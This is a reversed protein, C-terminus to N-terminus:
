ADTRLRERDALLRDFRGDGPGSGEAHLGIIRNTLSDIQEAVSPLRELAPAAKPPLSPVTIIKPMRGLRRTIPEREGAAEPVFQYGLMGKAVRWLLSEARPPVSATGDSGYERCGAVYRDVEEPTMASDRNFPEEEPREPWPENTSTSM